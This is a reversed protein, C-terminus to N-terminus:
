VLTKTMYVVVGGKLPARREAVFGRREYYRINDDFRANTYLRLGLLGIEAALREAWRLLQEGLGQGQREPQIALNEILLHDGDPATEMLGVIQGACELVDFRHRSLAEVYDIQMPLPERGIVAVWKQYARRTLAAIEAADEPRALRLTTM